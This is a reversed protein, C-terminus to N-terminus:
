PKNSHRRNLDALLEDDNAYDTPPKKPITRAEDDLKDAERVNEQAAAIEETAQRKYEDSKVKNAPDLKRKGLLPALPALLIAIALEGIFYYGVAALIVAGIILYKTPIQM